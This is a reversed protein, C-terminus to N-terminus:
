AAYEGRLLRDILERDADGIGRAAAAREPISTNEELLATLRQFHPRWDQDWVVPDLTCRLGGLAQHLYALRPLHRRTAVANRCALCSLFSAACPRGSGTFPSDHLDLCAGTATDLSGDILARVTDPDDIYDTLDDPGAALLNRMRM